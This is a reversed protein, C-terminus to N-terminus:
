NALFHDSVLGRKDITDVREAAIGGVADQSTPLRYKSGLVLVGLVSDLNSRVQVAFELIDSLPCDIRDIPNVLKPVYEGLPTRFFGVSTILPDLLDLSLEELPDLTLINRSLVYGLHLHGLLM